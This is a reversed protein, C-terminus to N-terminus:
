QPQYHPCLLESMALGFNSGVEESGAELSALTHEAAALNNQALYLRSKYVALM